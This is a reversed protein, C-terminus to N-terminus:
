SGHSIVRTLEEELFNIIDNHGAGPVSQFKVVASFNQSLQKGMEFPVIQDRDGHFMLVQATGKEHLSRLSSLNDYRHTLLNSLVPGVTRSAMAKMTTFPSIAVVLQLDFRAAMELAVAAGLSHGLTASKQLLLEESLNLRKAVVPILRDISRRISSPNPRGECIGYGPYDVMVFIVGPANVAEIQDLWDLALSGNGGFVWWVREIPEHGKNILFATQSKGRNEFKLHEVRRLYTGYNGYTRPFYILKAQVLYILLPVVVLLVLIIRFVPKLFEM